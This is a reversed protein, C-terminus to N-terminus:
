RTAFVAWTADEALLRSGSDLAQRIAADRAVDGCSARKDLVYFRTGFEAELEVLDGPEPVAERGAMDLTRTGFVQPACRLSAYADSDLYEDIGSYWRVSASFAQCGLVPREHWIQLRVAPNSQFCDAPVVLLSDEPQAIAAVM